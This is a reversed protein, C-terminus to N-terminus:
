LDFVKSKHIVGFYLFNVGGGLFFIGAICYKSLSCFYHWTIDPVMEVYVSILVDTGNM